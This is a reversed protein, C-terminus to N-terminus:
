LEEAKRICELALEEIRTQQARTADGLVDMLRELLRQPPVDALQGWDLAARAFQEAVEHENIAAKLSGEFDFLSM